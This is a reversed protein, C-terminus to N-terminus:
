SLFVATPLSPVIIHQLFLPEARFQPPHMFDSRVVLLADRRCGVGHLWTIITRLAVGDGHELSM